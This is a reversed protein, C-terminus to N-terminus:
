HPSRGPGEGAGFRDVGLQQGVSAWRNRAIEFTYGFPKCFPRSPTITRSTQQIM